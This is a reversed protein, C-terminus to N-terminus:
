VLWGLRAIVALDLELTQLLWDVHREITIRHGM